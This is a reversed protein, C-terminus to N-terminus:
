FVYSIGTSFTNEKQREGTFALTSPNVNQSGLRRNSYQAKVIVQPIVYWNIGGTISSREWRPNDVVNGEVNRMTDYYDYRLFPYIYSRTRPEWFHKLDYGAEVSFGLANKGVPTRKVGLNNSISANKRSVIDSNELDGFLFISNFRLYNQDYTIHAEAIKVYATENMDNKPRNAAADNVYGAVGIYNKGSKGFKYDLRAMYAFSEANSTEFRKQYGGKIWGRSSFGSADLGSTVAFRYEFKNKLFTGNLEIGSEYWGLPLIENEMEPRHTTFYDDPDDLSQALGFYIKLKGARVTFTPTVGFEIFAQEVRVEGGAEVEAEYEGFEEQTDLEMTIGAGNHEFEIESQFRVWKNYQYGLYLNLREADLKDKLNIDTDYDYNYYNVIGYANLDFKGWNFVSINENAIEKKVEAKLEEKLEKKIEQKLKERDVEQQTQANAAFAFLMLFLYNNKM